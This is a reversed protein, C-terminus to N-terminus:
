PARCSSRSACGIFRGDDMGAYLMTIASGTRRTSVAVAQTFLWERLEQTETVCSDNRIFQMAFAPRSLELLMAYATQRPHSQM